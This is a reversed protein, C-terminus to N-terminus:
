GLGAMSFIKSPICAGAHGNPALIRLFAWFRLECCRPFCNVFKPPNMNLTTKKVKFILAQPSCCKGDFTPAAATPTQRAEGSVKSSQFGLLAIELVQTFLPRSKSSDNKTHNIHGQNDTGLLCLWRRRFLPVSENRTKTGLFTKFIQFGLFAIQLM